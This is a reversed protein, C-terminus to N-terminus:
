SSGCLSSRTIHYCGGRDWMGTSAAANIRSLSHSVKLRLYRVHVKSKQRAKKKKKKESLYVPRCEGLYRPGTHNLQVQMIAHSIMGDFLFLFVFKLVKLELFCKYEHDHGM